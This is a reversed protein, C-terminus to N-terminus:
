ATEETFASFLGWYEPDSTRIKKLGTKQAIRDIMMKALKATEPRTAPDAEVAPLYPGMPDDPRYPKDPRWVYNPEWLEPHESEEKSRAKEPQDFVEVVVNGQNRKPHKVEDSPANTPTAWHHQAM